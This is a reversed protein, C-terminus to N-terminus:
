ADLREGRKLAELQERLAPLVREAEPTGMRDHLQKPDAVVDHLSPEFRGEYEVYLWRETRM